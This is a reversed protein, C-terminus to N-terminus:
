EGPEPDAFLSVLRDRLVFVAVSLAALAAVVLAFSGVRDGALSQGAYAAALFSPTRGVVVLALFTRLRLDSLGAVFCLLDDPFTPLLFLVFLGVLGNRELFRDWRALAEPRMVGEVYPRGYRRALSFAATSGLTVGLLSYLTGDVVGFLYGGVGGLVQGPIPALLVQGAQLAVFALPAFAGFAAVQRRLWTPDFLRPVAAHLGVGLAVFLALLATGRVAADRRAARSRFFRTPEGDSSESPSM